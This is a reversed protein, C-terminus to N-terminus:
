SEKKFVYFWDVIIYYRCLFKEVGREKTETKKGMHMLNHFFVCLVVRFMSYFYGRHVFLWNGMLNLLKYVLQLCVFLFYGWSPFFKLNGSVIYSICVICISFRTSLIPVVKPNPKQVLVVVM